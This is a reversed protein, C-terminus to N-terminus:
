AGSIDVKIQDCGLTKMVRRAAQQATVVNKYTRMGVPRVFCLCRGSPGHVQAVWRLRKMGRDRLIHVLGTNPCRAEELESSPVIQSGGKPSM